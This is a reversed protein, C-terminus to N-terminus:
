LSSLRVQIVYLYGPRVACYVVTLATYLFLPQTNEPGYLVSSYVSRASYLIKTHQVHHYSFYGCPKLRKISCYAIIGTAFEIVFKSM